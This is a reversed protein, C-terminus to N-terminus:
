TRVIMEVVLVIHINSLPMDWHGSGGSVRRSKAILFLSALNLFGVVVNGGSTHHKKVSCAM